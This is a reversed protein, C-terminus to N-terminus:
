YLYIGYDIIYDYIKQLILPLGDCTLPLQELPMGILTFKETNCEELLM